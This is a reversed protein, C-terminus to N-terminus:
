KLKLVPLFQNYIKQESKLRTLESKNLKYKKTM